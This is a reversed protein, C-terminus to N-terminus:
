FRAIVEKLFTVFSRKGNSAACASKESCCTGWSSTGERGESEFCSETESKKKAKSVTELTGKGNGNKLEAIIVEVPRWEGSDEYRGYDGSKFQGTDFGAQVEQPTFYGVNNFARSMEIRLIKESM